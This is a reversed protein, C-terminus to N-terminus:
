EAETSPQEESPAEESEEEENKQYPTIMYREIVPYAAYASTFATFALYYLFPLVLPIVISPMLVIILSVNLATILLIWLTALLNRKIGLTTFILANKLLKRISLDFTILMLYLYFRMFFYLIAMACIAYFMFDMWFTGLRAYFFAYDTVLLFIVAADLLGLLFGQKLNRRIAYFYDQWLFVPDGRVMSRLVYTAGVNQWGFTVLLFLASIGMLIYATPTFVPIMVQAGFLDLLLTGETTAGILSAGYLPAFIQTSATPTKDLTVWMYVILLLPLVQFLMMLNLSVLQWFRRGLLKFYRKIGPTTDEAVADPRQGGNYAFRKLFRGNNKKKQM